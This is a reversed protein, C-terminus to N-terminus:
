FLLPKADSIWCFRPNTCVFGDVRMYVSWDACKNGIRMGADGTPPHPSTKQCRRFRRPVAFRTAFHQGTLAARGRSTYNASEHDTTIREAPQRQWRTQWCRQTQPIMGPVVAIFQRQRRFEPERRSTRTSSDSEGSTDSICGGTTTGAM